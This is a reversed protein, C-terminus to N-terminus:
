EVVLRDFSLACRCDTPRWAMTAAAHDDDTSCVAFAHLDDREDFRLCSGDVTGSQTATAASGSWGWTLGDDVVMALDPHRGSCSANCAWTVLYGGAPPPPGEACSALAALLAITTRM